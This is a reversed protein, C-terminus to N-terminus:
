KAEAAIDEANERPARGHRHKKSDSRAEKYEQKRERKKNEKKERREIPTARKVRLDRGKFQKNNMTEVAKKMEEPTSFQIYAIGKGIFTEKDRIVRVNLIKGIDAFIARLEEENVIYPLNGIFISTDFDNTSNEKGDLDVRIHKDGVVTQNLEKTAKVADEKTKFLVYANKNDKQEGYQGQIIKAKQPVKSDVSLAISRFWIKEVQGHKSFLKELQKRTSVLPVNGVFVTRERREKLQFASLEAEEKDNETDDIKADAPIVLEEKVEVPKPAEKKVEPKKEEFPAAVVPVVVPAVEVRVRKEVVPTDFVVTMPNTSSTRKKDKKNHKAQESM